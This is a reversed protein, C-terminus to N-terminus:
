NRTLFKLVDDAAALESLRRMFCFRWVLLGLGLNDVEPKGIIAKVKISNSTTIAMMAMRADSRRGTNDFALVRVCPVYQM